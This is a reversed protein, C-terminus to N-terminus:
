ESNIINSLTGFIHTQFKFDQPPRNLVMGESLPSLIVSLYNHFFIHKMSLERGYNGLIPSQIILEIQVKNLKLKGSLHSFQQHDMRLKKLFRM